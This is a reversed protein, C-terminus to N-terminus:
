PSPRLFGTSESEAAPSRATLPPAAHSLRRYDRIPYVLQAEISGATCVVLQADIAAFFLDTSCLKAPCLARRCSSSM